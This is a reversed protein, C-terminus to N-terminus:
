HHGPVCEPGCVKLTKSRKDANRIKYVIFTMFKRREWIEQYIQIYYEMTVWVKLLSKLL